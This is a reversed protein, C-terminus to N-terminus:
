QTITVMRTWDALRVHNKQEGVGYDLIMATHLESVNGLFSGSVQLGLANALEERGIWKPYREKCVDLIAKQSNSVAERIHGFVGDPTPDLYTEPAMKLGDATLIVLKEGNPASDQNVYGKAKLASLNNLFSGGVKIGLWGALQPRPVYDIDIQNFERMGKLIAIQSKSLTKEDEVPEDPDPVDVVKPIEKRVVPVKPEGPTRKRGTEIERVESRIVDVFDRLIGLASELKTGAREVKELGMELRALDQGKLVPVEVKEIKPPGDPSPPAEPKAALQAKLKVIETRLADETRVREEAMKPIGELKDLLAKIKEPTPTPAISYGTAGMEPHTTQVAGIEILIREKSIARGLGYFRGPELTKMEKFFMERGGRSVSLLDAARELDLDEFTPGVLRNLLEATANKALKSLRQTAYVAALGRKRGRTALDIMAGSAESEGMGREPAFVHSEDVVVLRPHWLSKPADILAELFMRVWRHRDPPKLEYIDCVASVKLELLKEAVIVATNPDAPTEGGPGVLVYDFKERLTSFEGEPDIIFVPVRGFLGESIKRLLWSKGGGSNAQLLLRTRLLEELDMEASGLSIKQM